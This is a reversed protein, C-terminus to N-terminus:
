LVSGEEITVSVGFACRMAFEIAGRDSPSRFKALVRRKHMVKFVVVRGNDAYPCKVVRYLEGKYEIKSVCERAMNNGKKLTIFPVIGLDPAFISSKKSIHLYEHMKKCKKQMKKCDVELNESIM